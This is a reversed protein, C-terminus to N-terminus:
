LAHLVATGPALFIPSESEQAIRPLFMQVATNYSICPDTCAAAGVIGQHAWVLNTKSFPSIHQRQTDSPASPDNPGRQAVKKQQKFAQLSYVRLIWM